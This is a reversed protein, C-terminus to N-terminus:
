WLLRDDSARALSAAAARAVLSRLEDDDVVAALEAARALDAPTPEPRVTRAAEEEAPPREPLLGVAFRLRPPTADGLTENLRELLPRELQGLEFAWASSGAAVHLTRDRSIRAPWANRAIQPGVAAEWVELVDAMGSAPGFRGLERRVADGIPQM